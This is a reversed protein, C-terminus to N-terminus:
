ACYNISGSFRVHNFAIVIHRSHTPVLMITTVEWMCM